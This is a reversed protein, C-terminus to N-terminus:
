EAAFHIGKKAAEAHIADSIKQDFSDPKGSTALRKKESAIYDDREKSLKQIETQMATRAAQKKAIESKLQEDDLKQLDTPLDDKKLTELKVKGAALSDLLEGDGQVAVGAKANYALRDVSASVPAAESAAQKAFVERRAAPAGYAILTAGMGRNLEALRADMPTSIVAVNGNEPIAAYSGEARKAIDMWFKTTEAASGCQITNIVLDKKMAAQCIDPYKPGDAYDMHPPADGVLFIMKLVSRDKSWSIQRVAADLAENVSEPFDGGGEARFSRLNAYVADLDNTLDFTKVVYEDGRDRYPVLAFRINPAPKAMAIDNAISWIKQKAGEILGGMSGTTDLVFCVEIKPKATKTAADKAFTTPSLMLSAIFVSISFAARVGAREWGIPSPSVSASKGSHRPDPNASLNNTFTSIDMATGEGMPHSLTLTLNGRVFERMAGRFAPRPRSTGTRQFEIPESNPSSGDGSRNMPLATLNTNKIVNM